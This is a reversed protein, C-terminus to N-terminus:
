LTRDCINSLSPRRYVISPPFEGGWRVKEGLEGAAVPGGVGGGRAVRKSSGTKGERGERPPKGLVAEPLSVLAEKRGQLGRGPGSCCSVDEAAAPGVM